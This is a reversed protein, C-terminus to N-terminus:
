SKKRLMQDRAEQVLLIVHHARMQYGKGEAAFRDPHYKKLLKKFAAEIQVKPAGPAIGLIEYPPTERSWTPLASELAPPTESVPQSPQKARSTPRMATRRIAAHVNMGDFNAGANQSLM